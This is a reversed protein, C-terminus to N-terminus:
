CITGTLPAHHRDAASPFTQSPVKVRIVHFNKSEGGGKKKFYSQGFNWPQNAEKNVEWSSRPLRLPSRGGGAGQRRSEPLAGLGLSCLVKGM